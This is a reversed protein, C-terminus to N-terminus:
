FVCHVIFYQFIAHPLESNLTREILWFLTEYILIISSTAIITTTTTTVIKTTSTTATLTHYLWCNLHSPHEIIGGISNNFRWFLISSGFVFLLCCFSSSVCFIINTFVNQYFINMETLLTSVWMINQWWFYAINVLLCPLKSM